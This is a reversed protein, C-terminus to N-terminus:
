MNFTKLICKQQEMEDFKVAGLQIIPACPNNGLTELDICIHKM